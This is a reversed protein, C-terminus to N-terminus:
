ATVDVAAGKGPEPVPTSTQILQLAAQGEQKQVDLAQKLVALSQANHVSAACAACASDVRTM